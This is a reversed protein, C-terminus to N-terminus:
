NYTSWRSRCKSVCEKGVRSEESRDVDIDGGAHHLGTAVAVRHQGAGGEGGQARLGAGLQARRDLGVFTIEPRGREVADGCIPLACTQIWDSIRGEYATM